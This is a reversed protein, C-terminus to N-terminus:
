GCRRGLTCCQTRTHARAEKRGGVLRSTPILVKNTLSRQSRASLHAAWCLAQPPIIPLFPRSASRPFVTYVGLGYLVAWWLNCITGIRNEPSKFFFFFVEFISSDNFSNELNCVTLDTATAFCHPVRKCIHPMLVEGRRKDELDLQAASASRLQAVVERQFSSSSILGSVFIMFFVLRSAGRTM